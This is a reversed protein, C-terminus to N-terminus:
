IGLSSFLFEEYVPAVYAAIARRYMRKSDDDEKSEFRLWLYDWGKCSPITITGGAVTFEERNAKAAFRFPVEWDEAGRKSGSAGLFLVEGPEFGRFADLNVKGTCEFLIRKYAPTVVSDSLYHTESFHYVPVMIDVGECREGNDGIGHAPPAKEEGPAYGTISGGPAPTVIHQTGGGFDFSFATEGTQPPAGSTQGYEVSGTWVCAAPNDSDIHVPDVACTQRVLGDHTLPAEAALAARAAADDATGRVIYTLTASKTDGQTSERSDPKEEVTIAM